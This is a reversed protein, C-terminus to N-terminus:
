GASSLSRMDEFNTEIGLMVFPSELVLKVLTKRLGSGFCVGKGNNSPSGSLSSPLLGSCLLAIANLSNNVLTCVFGRSYRLGKCIFHVAQPLAASISPVTLSELVDTM